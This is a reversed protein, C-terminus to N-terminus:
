QIVKVTIDDATFFVYEPGYNLLQDQTFNDISFNFFINSAPTILRCHNVGDISQVISIIESRYIEINSGFRSSFATLLATTIANALDNDGGFYIPSRFVELSIQLPIQYNPLVWTGESFIYKLGKNTVYVIDDTSCTQFSWSTPSTHICQAITWNQGSWAGGEAGTVIYRDGLTPNSPVATLYIDKVDKQTTTNLQMNMMLGSTNTFKINTFDTMM